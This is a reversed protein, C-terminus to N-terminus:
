KHEEPEEEDHSSVAMTAFVLTLGAFILAQIVGFFMELGYFIQLAGFGAFVLLYSFVLVLIEGGLMNGFLRFTFSIVRILYSVLELIGVFIDIFGFGIDGFGKKLKGTFVEGFGKIFRGPNKIGTFPWFAFFQKFYGFKHAKIGWFTFCCFSIVALALPTNIDTNAGRLLHAEGWKISNYGPILNMLANVMVFLFITSVLPFFRKGNKEGATDKCFNYLWEIVLEMLSQIKGPILKPKRTVTLGIILLLIMTVWTALITNTVPLPGINFIVDAPLAVHFESIFASEPDSANFLGGHLIGWVSLPVVLVLIVIFTVLPISCGLCGCGIKKKGM